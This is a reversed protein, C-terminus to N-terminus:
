AGVRGQAREPPGSFRRAHWDLFEVARNRWYRWNHGGPELVLEAELGAAVRREAPRQACDAWLPLLSLLLGVRRMPRCIM